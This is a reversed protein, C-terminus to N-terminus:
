FCAVCSVDWPLSPHLITNRSGAFYIRWSVPLFLPQCFYLFYRFDPHLAYALSFHFGWFGWFEDLALPSEYLKHCLLEGGKM